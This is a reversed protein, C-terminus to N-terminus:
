PTVDTTGTNDVLYKRGHPSTWLYTAPPLIEYDWATLTKLRHHRRCLPALNDTSTSGGSDYPVVHDKDCHEATRNCWPHACTPRTLEVRRKIRDPIEYQGVQVDDNLDIVPVVTLNIDDRGAWARITERLVPTRTTDLRGVPETGTIAAESLHVHLVIQKRPRAPRGPREPEAPQGADAPPQAPQDTLIALAAEPDALIGVAKARRVDLPDTDGQEGLRHAIAAVASDFDLADLTDTTIDIHAIGDATGDTHLEVRRHERAQERRLEAEEPHLRLLAEDILRDITVLGVRQAISAIEKDVSEAVDAPEHLTRSAIRRARWAQVQGAQVRAWLRPLRHRTELSELILQQGSGTPIGLRAAFEPIATWRVSPVDYSPEDVTQDRTDDFAPRAEWAADAPDDAPHLDAWDCARALLLAEARDATIRLVGVADLVAGATGLDTDHTGGIATTESARAM